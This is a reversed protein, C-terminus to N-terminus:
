VIRLVPSCEKGTRVIVAYLSDSRCRLHLQTSSLIQICLVALLQRNNAACNEGSPHHFTKNTQANMAGAYCAMGAFASFVLPAHRLYLPTGACSAWRLWLNQNCLCSDLKGDLSRIEPTDRYCGDTRAV